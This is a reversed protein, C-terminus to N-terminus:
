SRTDELGTLREIRQCEVALGSILCDLSRLRIESGGVSDPSTRAEPRPLCRLAVLPLDRSKPPNDPSLLCLFTKHLATKIDSIQALPPRSLAPM